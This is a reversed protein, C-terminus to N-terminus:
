LNPAPALKDFFRKLAKDLLAYVGEFDRVDGYYPDPVEAGKFGSLDLVLRAKGTHEPFNRELDRLNEKDMVYVHDYHQWDGAEIQRARHESKAEHKQLVWHTRSDADEGVHWAGTGCSDVEFQGELRREQMMKRFIGEAMPSRCINGACVFLVRIM